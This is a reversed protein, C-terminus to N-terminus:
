LQIIRFWKGINVMVSSIHMSILYELHTLKHTKMHARQTFTKECYKCDFPREGQLNKKTKLAYFLM